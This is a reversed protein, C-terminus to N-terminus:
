TKKMQIFDLMDSKVKTTKVKPTVGLFSNSIEPQASKYRQKRRFTM